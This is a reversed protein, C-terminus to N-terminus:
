AVTRESQFRPVVKKIPRGRNKETQWVRQPSQARIGRQRRQQRLAQAENGKDTAIVNLRTRPRELTGTRVKVAERLPAGQAREVGYTPTTCNAGPLGHGEPLRHIRSGTGQGGQAVGEGNLISCYFIRFYGSQCRWLRVQISTWTM